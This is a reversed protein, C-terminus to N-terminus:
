TMLNLIPSLVERAIIEIINFAIMLIFGAHIYRQNQILKFYNNPSFAYIMKSMDLPPVPFLNVIFIVMNFVVLKYAGYILFPNAKVQILYNFIPLMFLMLMLSALQGSLMLPLLCREKDKLRNPNYEIPKQWGVGFTSFAFLILGIPDIFKTLKPITITKKRYIPHTLFHAAFVKPLEHAVMVIVGCLANIILRIILITM